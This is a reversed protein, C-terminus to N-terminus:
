YLLFDSFRENWSPKTDRILDRAALWQLDGSRIQSLTTRLQANGWLIDLPPKEREYEYPPPLLRVHEPWMATASALLAVTTEVSRFLEPNTVQLDLGQCSQNAFKDFTPQFRTAVLRVGPLEWKSLEALWDAADMFPAGVLEFPRTTGRGESLNMGELLVQGPYVLTTSLTPMNPSPWIWTASTGPQTGPIWLQREWKPMKIVEVEVDIEHIHCLFGVLEGMTLGHRLEVPAGGVFSEFGHSLVHGEVTEGGLPNPRDLIVVKKGAAACAHLCELMTWAFTYVRTGVDQLDIALIDIAELMEPTPRRTESYLSHLPLQLPQYWSHDSEVMNAQQEGWLGHQPSFLATLQRPCKRALYDAALELDSTVSAQNFLLGLRASSPPPSCEIWRELGTHM